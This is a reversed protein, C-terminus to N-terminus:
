ARQLQVLVDDIWSPLELDTLRGNDWTTVVEWGDGTKPVDLRWRRGDAEVDVRAGGDPLPKVHDVDVKRGGPARMQPM